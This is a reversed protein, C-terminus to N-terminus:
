PTECKLLYGKGRCNPCVVRRKREAYREPKVTERRLVIESSAQAVTKGARINSSLTATESTSLHNEVVAQLAEPQEAEPLRRVETLKHATMVREYLNSRGSSVRALVRDRAHVVGVCLNITTDSVGLKSAAERESLKFREMFRTFYVGREFDSFNRRDRNENFLALAAEEDKLNLVRCSAEKAGRVRL